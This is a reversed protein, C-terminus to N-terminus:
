GPQWRRAPTKQESVQDLVNMQLADRIRDTLMAWQQDFQLIGEFRDRVPRLEAGLGAGPVWLHLLHDVALRLHVVDVERGSALGSRDVLWGVTTLLWDFRALEECLGALGPLVDETVGIRAYRKRRDLELDISPATGPAVTHAAWHLVTRSRLPPDHHTRDRRVVDNVIRETIASLDLTGAPAALPRLEAVNEPNKKSRLFGKALDDTSAAGIVEITGPSTLYEAWTRRHSAGTDALVAATSGQLIRGGTVAARGIVTGVGRVSKGSHTALGCDVGTLRAASRSLRIPREWSTVEQGTVLDLAAVVAALPLAGRYPLLTTQVEGVVLM